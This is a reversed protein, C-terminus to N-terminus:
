TKKGLFLPVGKLLQDMCGHRMDCKQNARSLAILLTLLPAFILLIRPKQKLPNNKAKPLFGM